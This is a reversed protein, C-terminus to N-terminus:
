KVDETVPEVVPPEPVLPEHASKGKLSNPKPGTPVEKNVVSAGDKIIRSAFNDNNHYQNLRSAEDKANEGNDHQSVVNQNSKNVVEHTASM